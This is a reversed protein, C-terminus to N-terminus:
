LHLLPVILGEYESEKSLVDVLWGSNAFSQYADSMATYESHGSIINVVLHGDPDYQRFVDGKVLHEFKKDVWDNGVRVKITRTRRGVIDNM